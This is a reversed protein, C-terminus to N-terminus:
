NAPHCFAAEKAIEFHRRLDNTKGHHHVNMKRQREPIDLMKQVLASEVDAV